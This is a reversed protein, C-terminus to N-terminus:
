RYKYTVAQRVGGIVELFDGTCRSVNLHSRFLYSYNRSAAAFQENADLSLGTLPPGKKHATLLVSRDIGELPITCLENGASIHLFTM